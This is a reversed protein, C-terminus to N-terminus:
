RRGTRMPPLQSSDGPGDSQGSFASEVLGELEAGVKARRSARGHERALDLARPTLNAWCRVIRLRWRPTKVRKTAYFERIEPWERNWWDRADQETISRSGLPNERALAQWFDPAFTPQDLDREDEPLRFAVAM